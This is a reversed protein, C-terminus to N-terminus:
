IVHRAKTSVESGPRGEILRAYEAEPAGYSAGALDLLMERKLITITGRESGIMGSREFGAMTATLGPRNIGLMLSLFRHTTPLEDGETRDHCMLLWRALRQEVKYRTNALATGAIQVNVSQAYRLLLAQLDSTSGLIERLSESSVSWGYGAMQIRGEHPTQDTAFLVPLGVMGERGILALEVQKGDAATAINSLIGDEIFHVRPIPTDPKILVEGLRLPVTSLHPQLLAFDSESMARLLRNHCARQISAPM